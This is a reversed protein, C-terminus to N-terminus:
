RGYRITWNQVFRKVELFDDFIDTSLVVTRPITIVVGDFKNFIQHKKIISNIFALGRAKRGISRDGIRSFISYEDFNNKDFQAIVGDGKSM